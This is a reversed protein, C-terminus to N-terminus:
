QGAIDTGGTHTAGNLFANGSYLDGDGFTVPNFFTNNRFVNGGASTISPFIFNNSVIDSGTILNLALNNYGIFCNKIIDGFSITDTIGNQSNGVVINVGDIACGACFALNIATGSSAGTYAISGNQVTVFQVRAFKSSGSISIGNAANINIGNLDLVVNSATITIAPTTLGTPLVPNINPSLYYYGPASITAPLSKIKTAAEAKTVDVAHVTGALICSALLLAFKKM